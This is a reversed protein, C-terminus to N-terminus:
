GLQAALRASGKRAYCHDCEASVEVCGLWANFTHDAWEIATNEGM